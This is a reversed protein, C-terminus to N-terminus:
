KVRATKMITTTTMSMTDDYGKMMWELIIYGAFDVLFSRMDMMEKFRCDVPARKM